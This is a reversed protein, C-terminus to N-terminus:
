LAMFLDASGDLGDADAEVVDLAADGVEFARGDEDCAYDAEVFAGV